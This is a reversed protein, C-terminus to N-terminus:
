AAPATDLRAIPSSFLESIANSFRMTADNISVRTAEIGNNRKRGTVTARRTTHATSQASVFENVRDARGGEARWHGTVAMIMVQVARELGPQAVGYQHHHLVRHHKCSAGSDPRFLAGDLRWIRLSSHVRRQRGDIRSGDFVDSRALLADADIRDGALRREDTGFHYSM